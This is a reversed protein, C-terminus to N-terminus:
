YRLICYIARVGDRWGIKKGEAYTRGDYSIPVEYFRTGTVKAVRATIEPEIGFGSEKLQPAINQILERRFLKYGTEVDSLNLNTKMNSLLTILKNGIYHWFYLARQSDGRFRSGYVVDAQGSVIPQILRWFDVPDYELDADQVVVIDGRAAAFGTRLAAGKGQNREHKLLVVDDHVEECIKQAIDSTGDTSGDDVLIVECPVGSDRVRAVITAITPAENYMPIVVSLLFEPPLEFIGLQECASRGLLDRLLSVREAPTVARVADSSDDLLRKVVEQPSSGPQKSSARPAPDM